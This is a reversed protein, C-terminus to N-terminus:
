GLLRLAGRRPRSQREGGLPSRACRGYLGPMLPDGQEGGEAQQYLYTSQAGCFPPRVPYLSGFARGAELRGPNKPWFEWLIFFGVNDDHMLWGYEWKRFDFFDSGHFNGLSSGPSRRLLIFSGLMEDHM